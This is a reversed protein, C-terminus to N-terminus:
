YCACGGGQCTSTPSFYSDASKEKEQKGFYKENHSNNILFVSLFRCIGFYGPFRSFKEPGQIFTQSKLLNEIKSHQLCVKMWAFPHLHLPLFPSIQLYIKFMM